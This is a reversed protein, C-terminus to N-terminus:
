GAAAPNLRVPIPQLLTQASIAEQNAKLKEFLIREHAAHKDILFADEGQEVLLYSKYLEGVPRWPLVKPMPIELQERLSEREPVSPARPPEQAKVPAPSVAKQERVSPLIVEQRVEPAAKKVQEALIGANEPRPKPGNQVVSAM